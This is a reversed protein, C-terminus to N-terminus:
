EYFYAYRETVQLKVSVITICIKTYQAPVFLYSILEKHLTQDYQKWSKEQLM